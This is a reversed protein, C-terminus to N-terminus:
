KTLKSLVKNVVDDSITELNAKRLLKILHNVEEKFPKPQPPRM